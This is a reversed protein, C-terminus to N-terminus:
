QRRVAKGDEGMRWLDPRVLCKIAEMNDRAEAPTMLAEGEPPIDCEELEDPAVGFVRRDFLIGDNYQGTVAVSITGDDAFSAITVRHATEAMLYLTWPNFREGTARAKPPLSKVWKEWQRVQAKTPEYIRAM